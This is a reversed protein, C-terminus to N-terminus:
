ECLSLTKTKMTSCFSANSINLAAAATFSFSRHSPSPFPLPFPAAYARNQLDLRLSLGLMNQNGNVFWCYRTGLILCWFQSTTNLFEAIQFTHSLTTIPRTDDASRFLVETASTVNFRISVIPFVLIRTECTTTTTTPTPM